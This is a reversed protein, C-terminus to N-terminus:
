EFSQLYKLFLKILKNSAINATIVIDKIVQKSIGFLTNEM